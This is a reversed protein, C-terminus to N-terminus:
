KKDGDDLGFRHRAYAFISDVGAYGIAASIPWCLEPSFDWHVIAFLATLTPKVFFCLIGCMLAGTIVDKPNGNKKRVGALISMVAALVSYGIENRHNALWSLWAAWWDPRDQMTQKKM